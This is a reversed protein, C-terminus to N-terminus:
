ANALPVKKWQQEQFAHIIVIPVLGNIFNARKHLSFVDRERERDKKKRELNTSQYRIKTQYMERVKEQKKTL